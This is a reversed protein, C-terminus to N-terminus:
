IDVCSINALRLIALFLMGSCVQVQFEVRIVDQFGETLKPEKFRSAFGTFASHPLISRKEPNFKSTSLARVTDNHQCLKAPAPFHVCRIPVDLKHALHVWLARTELDANTNDLEELILGERIQPVLSAYWHSCVQKWRADGLSGKCMQGATSGANTSFRLNRLRCASVTKLNDQNIREYGLLKLRTWYFTSKGSGPSGCM